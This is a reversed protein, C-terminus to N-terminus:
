LGLTTWEPYPGGPGVPGSPGTPYRFALPLGLDAPTRGRALGAGIPRVDAAGNRARDARGAIGFVNVQLAPDVRLLTAVAAGTGALIAGALLVLVAGYGARPASRM